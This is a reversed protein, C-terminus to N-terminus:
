KNLFRMLMAAVEARTAQGQPKLTGDENGQMLGTEVAWQMASFAYESIKGNDAFGSLDAKAGVDQGKFQAYRYLIAALQERTIKDEPAFQTDSYGKVIGNVAAWAVAKAYYQGADVDAFSSTTAAPEGEARYLITVIQARTTSDNPGFRGDEYGNMLGKAVVYDVYQVYWAGDKVDSFTKGPQETQGAETKVFVPTITVKNKPMVFTYKDDNVKTVEVSKGDSDKVTLKDLKYGKDPKITITVTQGATPRTPSITVKGGDVKGAISVNSGGASGGGGHGSGSGSGGGLNNINVKGGATVTQNTTQGDKIINITGGNPFTIIGDKGVIVPAGDVIQVIIDNKSITTDNVVTSDGNKDTKVTEGEPATITIGNIDVVPATTSGDTTNVQGGEPTKIEISNQGDSITASGDVPLNVNGDKNVAGGKEGVVVTPANEADKKIETGEPVTLGGHGDSNVASGEPLKITTDAQGNEGKVTLSGDGGPKVSGDPNLEAGDPLTINVSDDDNGGKITSGGPLTISGKDDPTIEGKDEPLIIITDPIGDGDKDEGTAIINDNPKITGDEPKVNGGSPLTIPTGDEGNQGGTTVKGGEGVDVTGDDKPTVTTSGHNTINGEDDTKNEPATITTGPKGNEGGVTVTAGDKIEVNGDPTVTGGKDDVTIAPKKNDGDNGGAQVKTGSGSVDAGGNGNPKVNGGNEGATVETKEGSGNGSEISATGGGPLDVGGEKDLSGGKDGIIVKDGNNNESGSSVETDKPVDVGGKDNPQLKDGNPNSGDAGPLVVITDIKGDGDTDVGAIQKGDEDTGPTITGGEVVTGGNPLIIETSNKDEGSGDTTETTVKSGDPVEVNGGTGPKITGGNGGAGGTGGGEPVTIETKPKDNGNEDKGGGITASGGGPLTIEGDKNLTGGNGGTPDDKDGVTVETGDEGTKVTTGGSVDTTGDPNPKVTSGGEGATVETKPKEQGNEDKGNDVTAKGGEPLDVGGENNLTGGNEGNEGGVTIESGNEGNKITTGGPVDLGGDGDGKIEGTPKGNSDTPLKVETDPKGDGNKDEGTLANGGEPKVGGGPTIEGGEPLTVSAGGEGNGNDTESGGGKIETGEPVNVGGNENPKIKDGDTAGGGTGPLVVITDVKGDGDTDVGAIQKGDEDKDPTIDGNDPNVNGGNPLTIETGGKDGGTGPTEPDTKVKGGEGVDVTNDDKPTVTTGGEGGTITTGGTTNGNGDTTGGVNATGGEPIKVEGEPTVTGGKDGITVDPKGTGTGSGTGDGDKVTSGGPVTVDGTGKDVTVEGDKNNDPLTITTDTSGDKDKDISVNGDEDRKVETKGDDTTVSGGPELTEGKKEPVVIKVTNTKTTGNDDTIECYFYYTGSQLDPIKCTATKGGNADPVNEGGETSDTTNYKWQYRLEGSGSAEVTLDKGVPSEGEPLSPASPQTDVTPNDGGPTEQGPGVVLQLEGKENREVHYKEDDSVIYKSYDKDVIHSFIVPEGDQPKKFTTIGFKSGSTQFDTGIAIKSHQSEGLEINNNTNDTKHNNFIEGGHLNLKASSSSLSTNDYYLGGGQAATNGSIKGGYINFKGGDVSYYIGGGKGTAQNGSIEGGYMNFSGAGGIAIGGGDGTITHGSIKGGYMNFMGNKVDIRPFSGAWSTQSSCDCLNLTIVKMGIPLTILSSASDTIKHGNLCITTDAALTIDGFAMDADLVFYGGSAFESLDGSTALHTWGFHAADHVNSVPIEVKLTQTTLKKGEADTIKCFIYYTGPPLAIEYNAETAGKIPFGGDNSNDKNYLWQYTYPEEGGEVEVTVTQGAAPADPNPLTLQDKGTPFEFPPAAMTGAVLQLEGSESREVHYSLSRQCTFYKAAEESVNSAITIPKGETVTGSYYIYIKETEPKNTWGEDTITIPIVKSDYFIDAPINNMKNGTLKLNGNITLNGGLIFLGGYTTNGSIEGGTLEVTGGEEAIFVSMGSIKGGTMKYTGGKVWVSYGKSTTIEGSHMNFTGGTNVVVGSGNTNSIKGTYEETDSYKCDYLDFTVGDNIEIMIGTDSSSDNKHVYGNLCLTTGNKPTWRRTSFPQGPQAMRIYYEGASLDNITKDNAGSIRKFPTNDSHMHTSSSRLVLSHKGNEEIDAVIYDIDKSIFISSYDKDLDTKIVTDPDNDGPRTYGTFDIKIKTGTWDDNEAFTLKSEPSILLGTHAIDFVEIGPHIIFEGGSSMDLNIRSGSLKGGYMEFKATKAMSVGYANGNIEGGYMTFAGGVSFVGSRSEYNNIIKGNTGDTECDCLSLATNEAVGFYAGTTKFELQQGNLCFHMDKLDYEDTRFQPVSTRGDEAYYYKGNDWEGNAKPWPEWVVAEHQPSHMCTQGCVPHIHEGARPLEFLTPQEEPKPVTDPNNTYVPNDPTQGANAEDAQALMPLCMLGLCLCLAALLWPSKGKMFKESKLM